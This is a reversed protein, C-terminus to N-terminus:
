LAQYEHCARSGAPFRYGARGAVDVAAERLAGAERGVPLQLGRAAIVCRNNQRQSAVAFCSGSGSDAGVLAAKFLAM